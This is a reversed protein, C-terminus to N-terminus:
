PLKKFYSLLTWPVELIIVITVDFIVSWLAGYYVYYNKLTWFITLILLEWLLLSLHHNANKLLIYIYIYIKLLTHLQKKLCLVVAGTRAKRHSLPYLSGTICSVCSVCSVHTQNRPGSSGWSFSVAVWELIRAQFIGHVSSGLLSCDM